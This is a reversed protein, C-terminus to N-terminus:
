SNDTKYGDGFLAYKGDIPFAAYVAWGYGVICRYGGLVGIEFRSARGTTGGEVFRNAVTANKETM